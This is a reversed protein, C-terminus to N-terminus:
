WRSIPDMPENLPKLLHGMTTLIQLFTGFLSPNHLLHSSAPERSRPQHAHMGSWGLDAAASSVRGAFVQLTKITTGGIVEASFRTSPTIKEVPFCFSQQWMPFRTRYCVRTEEKMSGDDGIEVKVHRCM